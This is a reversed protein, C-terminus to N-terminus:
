YNEKFSEIVGSIISDKKWTHLTEFHTSDRYEKLGKLSDIAHHFAVSDASLLLCVAYNVADSSSPRVNMLSDYKQASLRFEHIALSDQQLSAHAIGRLFPIQPDDPCVEYLVNLLEIATPFSDIAMQHAAIRKFASCHAADMGSRGEHKTKQNCGGTLICAALLM